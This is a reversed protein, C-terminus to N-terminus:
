LCYDEREPHCAGLDEDYTSNWFWVGDIAEVIYGRAQAQSFEGMYLNVSFRQVTRWEASSLHKQYCIKTVLEEGHKWKVLVARSQEGVLRCESAAKPFDFEKSAAFVPWFEFNASFVTKLEAGQESSSIQLFQRPTLGVFNLFFRSFVRLM